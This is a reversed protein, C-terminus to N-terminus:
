IYSNKIFTVFRDKGFIDRVIKVDAFDAETFVAATESGLNENIEVVGRGDKKLLLRGWRAVARYFILADEDPVFLAIAPEYELVNARMSCKERETVYPPNATLIDFQGILPPEQLIDACVFEPGCADSQGRAIHLAEESIDVGTVQAGPVDLALTWAICGSGTCLDLIRGGGFSKAIEVLQETEPRPILVGPGVKFERGCFPAHGLVYQLPEGALLREMDGSLANEDIEYGPEVIHTYSKVGFRDECLLLAMSRAEPGPYLAELSKTSERIFDALLM